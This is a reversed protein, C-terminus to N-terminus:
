EASMEYLAHGDVDHGPLYEMKVHSMSKFINERVDKNDREMDDLLRKIYIRRSTKSTPCGNEIVPINKEKAYKKILTERIYALPRIIHFKGGFVPQDPMMTSIERGYFMNILLTEIIDDKHHAVAIKNCGNENAIEFIRKRRMRSCLFCPNKKNYDSHALLGIDTKEMIYEYGNKRLYNELEAYGRYEEDFGLDINVALVSFRPLFVMRTNLLDLLVLSDLGGSVGVLVRDGEKLMNYDASAKELWKKLHLYLKTDKKGSM